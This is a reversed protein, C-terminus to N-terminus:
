PTKNPVDAPLHLAALHQVTKAKAVEKGVAM